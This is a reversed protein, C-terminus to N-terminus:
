KTELLASLEDIMTNKNKAARIKLRQRIKPTVFIAVYKKNAM